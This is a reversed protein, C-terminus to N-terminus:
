KTVDITTTATLTISRFLTTSQGPLPPYYGIYARVFYTGPQINTLNCSFSYDIEQNPQLSVTKIELPHWIPVSQWKVYNNKRKLLYLIHL